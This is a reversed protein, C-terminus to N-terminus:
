DVAFVEKQECGHEMFDGGAIEVYGGDDVRDALHQALRIEEVAFHTGDIQDFFPHNNGVADVCTVRVLKIIIM